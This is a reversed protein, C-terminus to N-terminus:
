QPAAFHDGPPIMQPATIDFTIRIAATDGPCRLRWHLPSHATLPAGSEPRSCFTVVSILFIKERLATM